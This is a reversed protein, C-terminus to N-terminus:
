FLWFSLFLNAVSLCTSSCAIAWFWALLADNSALISTLCTSALWYNRTALFLSICLFGSTLCLIALSGKVLTLLGFSTFLFALFLCSKYSAVPMKETTKFSILGILLPYSFLLSDRAYIMASFVVAFAIFWRWNTNRMLFILALWYCIALYLSGGIMM